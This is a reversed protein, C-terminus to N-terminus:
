SRIFEDNMDVEEQYTWTVVTMLDTSWGDSNATQVTSIWSPVEKETSKPTSKHSPKATLEYTSTEGTEQFQM